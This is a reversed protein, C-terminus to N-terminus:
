GVAASSNTVIRALTAYDGVVSSVETSGWPCAASVMWYARPISDQASLGRGSHHDLRVTAIRGQDLKSMGYETM